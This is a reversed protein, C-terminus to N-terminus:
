MRMEWSGEDGPAGTTWSVRLKSPNRCYSLVGCAGSLNQSNRCIHSFTHEYDNKARREKAGPLATCAKTDNDENDKFSLKKKFVTGSM